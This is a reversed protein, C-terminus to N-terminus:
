GNEKATAMQKKHERKLQKIMKTLRVRVQESDLWVDKGDIVEKLEEESLFPIYIDKAMKTFWKVQAEIQAVQEHGKGATGGSFNHIMLLCHDNVIFDDGCLFLLSGLSCVEGDLVTIIRANSANIAGILQIGTALQGGPTNLYLYIVEDPGAARIRHVLDVYHIPEKIVDSIYIHHAKNMFNEFVRPAFEGQGGRRNKTVDETTSSQIDSM